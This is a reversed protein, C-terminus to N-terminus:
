TYIYLIYTHIYLTCLINLYIGIHWYINKRERQRDRIYIYISLYVYIYLIYMIYIYYM